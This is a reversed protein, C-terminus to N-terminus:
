NSQTLEKMRHAFIGGGGTLTSDDSFAEILGVCSRQPLLGANSTNNPLVNTIEVNDM